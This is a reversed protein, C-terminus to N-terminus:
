TRRGTIGNKTFVAVHETDLEVHTDMSSKANRPAVVHESTSVRRASLARIPSSGAVSMRRVGRVPSGTTASADAVSVSLRRSRSSTPPPAQMDSAPGPIAVSM